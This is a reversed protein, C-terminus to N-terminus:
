KNMSAINEQFSDMVEELGMDGVEELRRNVAELLSQQNEAFTNYAAVVAETDLSRARDGLAETNEAFSNYAAVVAETDLSRAMDGFAAFHAESNESLNNYADVM